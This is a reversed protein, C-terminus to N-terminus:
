ATKLSSTKQIDQLCGILAKMESIAKLDQVKLEAVSLGASAAHGFAKRTGITVPVFELVERSSLLETAENNESGQTEGRNIFTLARLEPNVVRAEDVLTEVKDLTWVDFSRPVFPVVYVDAIALAARQSTTDRGGTDIVVDQYKPALRKVETLIAKGTLGVCTYGAGNPRADNRLNTFDTATEQDDADVLLVDRGAAALMVALNTAITSKGSGGKIGGIVTIM